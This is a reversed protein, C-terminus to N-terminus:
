ALKNTASVDLIKIAFLRASTAAVTGQRQSTIRPGRKIGAAEL